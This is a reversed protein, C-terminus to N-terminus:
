GSGKMTMECNSRNRSTPEMMEIMELFSESVSGLSVEAVQGSLLFELFTELILEVYKSYRYGCQRVIHVSEQIM